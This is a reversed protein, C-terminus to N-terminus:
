GWPRPPGPSPQACSPTARCSSQQRTTCSPTWTTRPPRCARPPRTCAATPPHWSPLARCGPPFLTLLLPDWLPTDELKKFDHGAATLVNTFRHAAALAELEWTGNHAAAPTFTSNAKILPAQTKSLESDGKFVSPAPTAPAPGATGGGAGGGAGATAASDPRAAALIASALIADHDMAHPLTTIHLIIRSFVEASSGHPRLMLSRAVSRLDVSAKDATELRQTARKTLLTLREAEVSAVITALEAPTLQAAAKLKAFNLQKLAAPIQKADLFFKLVKLIYPLDHPPAHEEEEEEEGGMAAARAAAMAKIAPNLGLPMLDATKDALTAVHRWTYPNELHELLATFQDRLEKHNSPAGTPMPGLSFEMLDM